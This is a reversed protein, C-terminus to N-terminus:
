GNKINQNTTSSADLHQVTGANINIDPITKEMATILGDIKGKIESAFNRMDGVQTEITKIRNEFSDVGGKLEGLKQFLMMTMEDIEM